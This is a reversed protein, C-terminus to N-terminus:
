SHQGGRFGRCLDGILGPDQDAGAVCYLGRGDAQPTLRVGAPLVASGAKMDECRRRIWAGLEPVTDVRVSGLGDVAAVEISEAYQTLEEDGLAAHTRLLREAARHPDTPRTPQGSQGFCVAAGGERRQRAKGEVCRGIRDVQAPHCGLLGGNM